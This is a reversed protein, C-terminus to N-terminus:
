RAATKATPQHAAFKFGNSEGPRPIPAVRPASIIKLAQHDCRSEASSLAVGSRASGSANVSSAKAAQSAVVQNFVLASCRGSPSAVSATASVNEM